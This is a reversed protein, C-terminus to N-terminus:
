QGGTWFDGDSDGLTVHWPDLRGLWERPIRSEWNAIVWTHSGRRPLFGFSRFLKAAAPQTTMVSLSEAGGNRAEVVAKATMSQLAELDGREVLYDVIVARNERGGELPMRWVIYGRPSGGHRAVVLRYKLVPHRTYKWNLFAADRCAAIDYSKAMSLWAGDLSEDFEPVDAAEIGISADLVGRAKRMGLMRAYGLAPVAAARKLVGLGQRRAFAAPDLVLTQTTPSVVDDFGCARHIKYCPVNMWMGGPYFDGTAKSNDVIKKAIGQGRYAPDVLLDHTIRVPVREGKIVYDAPMHGMSGAIEGGDTVVFRLPARSAGLPHGDHLWAVAKRRTAFKEPGLVQELFRLYAAEHKEKEYPVVPFDSM